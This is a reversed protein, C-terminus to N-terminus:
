IRLWHTINLPDYQKCIVIIQPPCLIWKSNKYTHTEYMYRKQIKAEDSLLRLTYQNPKSISFHHRYLVCAYFKSYYSHKCILINPKTIVRKLFQITSIMAEYRFIILLCPNLIYKLKWFISSAFHKISHFM